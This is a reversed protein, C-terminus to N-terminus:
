QSNCYGLNLATVYGNVPEEIPVWGRNGENAIYVIQNKDLTGVIEGDRERRVPIDRNIVQRCNRNPVTSVSASGPTKPKRIPTADNTRNAAVDQFCDGMNASTVYGNIPREVPVWGQNGENAVYITRGEALTAIIEGNRESRVPVNPSIIERCNEQPVTSLSESGPATTESEVTQSSSSNTTDFCSQLDSVKVYGSQPDDIQVWGQGSQSTMTVQQGEKLSGIINGNPQRRIYTGTAVNVEGCNNTQAIQSSRPSQSSQLSDARAVGPFNLATISLLTTLGIMKGTTDNIIIM